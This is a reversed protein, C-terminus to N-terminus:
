RWLIAVRHLPNVLQGVKDNIEIQFFAVYSGILKQRLDFSERLHSRGTRMDFFGLAGYEAEIDGCDRQRDGGHAAADTGCRNQEILNAIEDFAYAPNTLREDFCRVPRLRQDLAQTPSLPGPCPKLDLTLFGPGSTLLKADMM